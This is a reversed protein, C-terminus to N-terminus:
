RAMRAAVANAYPMRSKPASSDAPQTSSGVSKQGIAGLHLKQREITAVHCSM